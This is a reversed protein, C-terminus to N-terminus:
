RLKEGESGDLVYGSSLSEQIHYAKDHLVLMTLLENCGRPWHTFVPNIEQSIPIYYAIHIQDKDETGLM